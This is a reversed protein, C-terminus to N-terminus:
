MKALLPLVESLSNIVMVGSKVAKNKRNLLIPTIGVSLAGCVDTKESDGIHVVESPNCKSIELAKLFLEKHPKYAKVMDGCVIGAPNLGNDKMAIDVYQVGNNTIIYIPYPCAEFFPKVDDFLPAKSWYERCLEHMKNLDAKLGVEQTMRELAIDTMEDQTLYEGFNSKNELETIATWWYKIAENPDILNSHTCVIKTFEMTAKCIEQTLTGSYDVFIAKIKKM